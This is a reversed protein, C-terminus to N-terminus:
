PRKPVYLFDYHPSWTAGGDRSAESVQRVNGADPVLRMKRLIRAGDARHTEGTFRMAGESFEGSFEGVSGTSDVWTQRWRKSVPDHFTLSTGSYGDKQVYTERIVCGQQASEIRSTAVTQTGDRVEWEGLWFDLSRQAVSTCPAAAAALPLLCLLAGLAARTV